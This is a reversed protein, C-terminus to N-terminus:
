DFKKVIIFFEGTGGISPYPVFTSIVLKSLAVKIGFPSEAINSILALQVAQCIDLPNGEIV